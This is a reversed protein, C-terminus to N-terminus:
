IKNVKINSVLPNNIKLKDKAYKKYDFTCDHIEPQKCKSCFKNECRCDFLFLTKKNCKYCSM